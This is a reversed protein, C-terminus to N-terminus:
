CINTKVKPLVMSQMNKEMVYAGHGYCRIDEYGKELHEVTSLEKRLEEERVASGENSARLFTISPHAKPIPIM